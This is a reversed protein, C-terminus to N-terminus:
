KFLNAIDDLSVEKEGKSKKREHKKEPEESKEKREEVEEKDEVEDAEDTDDANEELEEESVKDVNNETVVEKKIGLVHNLRNEVALKIKKLMEQDLLKEEIKLLGDEAKRPILHIMFHQSRQGAALGNAVFINTGDVRLVKLLVQSLNRAVLFMRSVIKDPIQPMVIYHEKPLIFMHGKAAPNIDLVAVCSEDEYIKKSPVKDSIIQCFICQQKQFDRLEEPSMNKLKEELQKRQEESLEQM